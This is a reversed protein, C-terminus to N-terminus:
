SRIIVFRAGGDEHLHSSWWPRLFVVGVSDFKPRWKALKAPYYRNLSAKTSLHHVRPVRAHLHRPLAVVAPQM